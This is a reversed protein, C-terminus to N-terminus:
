PKVEQPKGCKFCYKFSSQLETGCNPCKHLEVLKDGDFPCFEADFAITNKCSPCVKM